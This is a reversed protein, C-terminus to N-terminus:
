DHCMRNCHMLNKRYCFSQLNHFQAKYYAGALINSCHSVHQKNKLVKGIECRKKEGM